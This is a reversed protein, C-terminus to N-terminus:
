SSKSLFYNLNGTKIIPQNKESFYIYSLKYEELMTANSPLDM